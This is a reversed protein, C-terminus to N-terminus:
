PVLLISPGEGRPGHARGAMRPSRRRGISMLQQQPLCLMFMLQIIEKPSSIRLVLKSSCGEPCILGEEFAFGLVLLGWLLLLWQIIGANPTGPAGIFPGERVLLVLGLPLRLLLLLLLPTRGERGATERTDLRQQLSSLQCVLQMLQM